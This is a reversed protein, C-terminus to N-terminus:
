AAEDVLSFHVTRVERAIVLKYALRFVGRCLNKCALSKQTLDM